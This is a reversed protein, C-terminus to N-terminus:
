ILEYEMVRIYDYNDRWIESDDLEFRSQHEENESKAIAAAQMQADKKLKFLTSLCTGGEFDDGIFVGYIKM